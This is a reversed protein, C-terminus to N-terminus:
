GRALLGRRAILLPLALIPGCIGVAVGLRWGSAEILPGAILSGTSVGVMVSLLLWTFTETGTGPPMSLHAIRSRVTLIPASYTGALIAPVIMTTPSTALLVPLSVLPQAIALRLCTQRLNGFRTAYVGYILAGIVSGVGILATFVGGLASSGHEAGFAPLAVDLAGFTFGVSIGTIVLLRIAPSALAGARGARRERPHPMAVVEPASVFWAAGILGVAAAFVLPAAPSIAVALLATLVQGSIFVTEILISDLLYAAPLEEPAVLVPWTRRLVGSIPPTTAGAMAAVVALALVPMGAEGLVVTGITASASLAAAPLVVPRAGRRDVLRRLIPGFAAFSLTYAATIAGAAGFSGTRSHVFIVLAVAGMGFPVRAM